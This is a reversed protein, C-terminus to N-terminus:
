GQYQELILFVGLYVLIKINELSFGARAFKQKTGGAPTSGAGRTLYPGLGYADALEAM